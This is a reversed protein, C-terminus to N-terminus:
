QGTSGQAAKAAKRAWENIINGMSKKVATGTTIAYVAPRLFPKPARKNTGLEIYPAHAASAGVYSEGKKPQESLGPEGNSNGGSNLSTRYSISNALQSTKRPVIKKAQTIIAQSAFLLSKENGENVGKMVQM